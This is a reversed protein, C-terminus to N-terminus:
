MEVRNKGLKKALYLKEDVLKYIDSGNVSLEVGMSVTVQLSEDPWKINQIFQRVRDMERKVFLPDHHRIVIAFEEGGIRFIQAVKPLIFDIKQSIEQLVLDGFDHGYHDNIQKFDDIDFLALYYPRNGIEKLTNNYKKRNGILTLGDLVNERQLHVVKFLVFTLLLVLGLLVYTLWEFRKIYLDNNNKLSKNNINSTANSFLLKYSIGARKEMEAEYTQRLKYYDDYNEKSYYYKLLGKYLMKVYRTNTAATYRNLLEPLDIHQEIHNDNKLLWQLEVSKVAIDKDVLFNHSDNELLGKAQKILKYSEDKLGLNIAIESKLALIYILYDDWENYPMKPKNKIVDNLTLSAKYYEGNAIKNEALILLSRIKLRQWKDSHGMHSSLLNQLLRNSTSYGEFYSIISALNVTGVAILYPDGEEKALALYEISPQIMGYLDQSLFRLTSIKRLLYLQAPKNDSLADKVQTLITVGIKAGQPTHLIPRISEAIEQYEYPYSSVPLSLFSNIVECEDTVCKLKFDLVSQEDKNNVVDILSIPSKKVDMNIKIVYTTVSIIM